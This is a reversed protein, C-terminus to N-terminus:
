LSPNRGLIQIMSWCHSAMGRQGTVEHGQGFDRDLERPARKLGKYEKSLLVGM